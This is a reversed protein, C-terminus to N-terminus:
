RGRAIRRSGVRFGNPEALNEDRLIDRSKPEGAERESRAPGGNAILASFTRRRKGQRERTDTM